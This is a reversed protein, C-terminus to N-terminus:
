GAVAFRVYVNLRPVDPHNTEITIRGLRGQESGLHNAPGTGPPVRIRLVAQTVAGGTLETIQGLAAEDVEMLDPVVEALKFKVEKRREGRVVILLTREAGDRGSITGINLVNNEENWGAGVVSIEGGVRGRVELELAPHDKVNTDLFITQRFPGPPLGPKVTVEAEFGGTADLEEKVEDDSAPQWSVEFQDKISSEALRHGTIELPEPLYGWLHTSASAAQGATVSSLTLVPPDARVAATVRATITLGVQPWNPDNTTVTVGERLEGFRNKPRVEVTVKGSKGPEIRTDVLKGLTCGCTSEGGGLELAADGNNTFIFDHSGVTQQDMPGFDYIESDVTVKPFAEAEPVGSLGQRSIAGGERIPNLLCPSRELRLWTAGLGAALGLFASAGIVIWTKMM